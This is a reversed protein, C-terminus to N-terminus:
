SGSGESLSIFHVHFSIIVNEPLQSAGHSKSRQKEEGTFM